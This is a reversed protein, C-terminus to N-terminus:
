PVVRLVLNDLRVAIPGKVVDAYVIGAQLTTLQRLYGAGLPREEIAPQGDLDVKVTAQPKTFDFTMAVHTWKKPLVYRIGNTVFYPSAGGDTLPPMREELASGTPKVTFFVAYDGPVSPEDFVLLSLKVDVAQTIDEVFVDYDLTANKVSLPAVLTRGLWTQVNVGTTTGNRVDLSAPPSRSEIPDVIMTGSGAPKIDNFSWGFEAPEGDDFDDCFLPAPTFGECFPGADVDAGADAISADSTADAVSADSAVTAFTEESCGAAVAGAALTAAVLGLAPLKMVSGEGYGM